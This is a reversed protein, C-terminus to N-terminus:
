RIVEVYATRDLTDQSEKLSCASIALMILVAFIGFVALIRIKM